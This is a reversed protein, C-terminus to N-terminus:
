STGKRIIRLPQGTLVGNQVPEPPPGSPTYHHRYVHDPLPFFGASGSMVWDGIEATAYEGNASPFDVCQEIEAPRGNCWAAVDRLNDATVRWAQLHESTTVWQPGTM